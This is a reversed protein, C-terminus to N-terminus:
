LYMEECNIRLLFLISPTVGKLSKADYKEIIRHIDEWRLRDRGEPPERQFTTHM